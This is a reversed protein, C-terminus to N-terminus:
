LYKSIDGDTCHITYPGTRRNWMDGKEIAYWQAMTGIFHIDKLNSCEFFAYSNIVTVTAPITISTLNKFGFFERESISTVNDPITFYTLNKSNNDSAVIRTNIEIECLKNIIEGFGYLLCSFIWAVLICILGWLLFSPTELYISLIIGAIISIISIIIFLAIALGKIKKGINRFM